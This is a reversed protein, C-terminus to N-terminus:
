AREELEVGNANVPAWRSTCGPRTGGLLEGRRASTRYGHNSDGSQRRQSQGGFGAMRHRLYTFFSERGVEGNNIVDIGTAIQRAISDATAWETQAALESADVTEGRALAAHLAILAPPRPLSGAHTTLFRGTSALMSM